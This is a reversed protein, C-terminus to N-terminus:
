NVLGLTKGSLRSMELKYLQQNILYEGLSLRPAGLSAPAIKLVQLWCSATWAATVHVMWFGAVQLGPRNLVAAPRWTFSQCNWPSGQQWPSIAELM